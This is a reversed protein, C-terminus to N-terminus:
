LVVRAPEILTRNVRKAFSNHQPTDTTTLIHEDVQVNIYERGGNTHLREVDNKFLKKVLGLAKYQEFVEAIESKKRLGVVHM